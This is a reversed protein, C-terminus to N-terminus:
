RGPLHIIEKPDVPIEWNSVSELMPQQESVPKVIILYNWWKRISEDLESAQWHRNKGKPTGDSYVMFENNPDYVEFYLQGSVRRMGKLVVFHGGGYSYFRGVREVSNSNFGLYSTDICVILLNGAVLLQRVQESGLYKSTTTPVGHSRLYNSIDSSYWWGNGRWDFSWDRAEEATKEFSPDYWKIAMTVSSPGCNNDSGEGTAMQDIYWEYNRDLHVYLEEDQGLGWRELYISQEYHEWDYWFVAEPFETVRWFCASGSFSDSFLVPNAGMQVIESCDKWYAGTLGENKQLVCFSGPSPKVRISAVGEDVSLDLVEPNAKLGGGLILSALFLTVLSPFGKSMTNPINM